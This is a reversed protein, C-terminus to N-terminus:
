IKEAINRPWNCYLTGEHTERELINEKEWTDWLYDKPLIMTVSQFVHSTEHAHSRHIKVPSLSLLAGYKNLARRDCKPIRLNEDKFKLKVLSTQHSPPVHMHASALSLVHIDQPDVLTGKPGM